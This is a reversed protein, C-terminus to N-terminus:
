KREDPDMDDYLISSLKAPVGPAGTEGKDGAYSYFTLLMVHLYIKIIIKRCSFKNGLM